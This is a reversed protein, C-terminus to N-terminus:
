PLERYPRVENEIADFWSALGLGIIRARHFGIVHFGHVGREPRDALHGERARVSLRPM